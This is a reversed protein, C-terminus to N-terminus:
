PRVVRGTEASERAALAIRLIRQGTEGDVMPSAEGRICALFHEIEAVYMGNVEPAPERATVEWHGTNALYEKVTNDQFNWILTGEEGIVKLSREYSRQVYDLHVTGHIGSTFRLSIDATDETDIELYSMKGAFCFVEAVPGFLWYLYDLEHISDLIIGGGLESRASYGTRYDEWPHWDPLYQGFEARVSIVRGIEGNDLITKVQQMGWHFRFNCGVLIVRDNAAAARLMEDVGDTSHSIPKEIFLHCGQKAAALAIPLHQSTSTCVLVAAPRTALAEDLSERIAIGFEDGASRLREPDIDYATLGTISLAQLNRIHRRGISGCGAVLIEAKHREGM